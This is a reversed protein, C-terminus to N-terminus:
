GKRFHDYGGTGPLPRREGELFLTIEEGGTIEGIHAAEAGLEGIMRDLERERGPAVTFLLSYDEGGTLPWQHPDVGHAAAAARMEQTLPLRDLHVAAGVGSARCVHGLDQLLGDSIDIACRSIGREALAMGVEIQPVPRNHAEVLFDAIKADLSTVRGLIVSLGAASDGVHGCLYLSEGARAADRRLERDKRVEGIVTISVAWGAPSSVTDGGSVQLLNGAAEMIGEYFAEVERVDTDGPLGISVFAQLPVAGMAALDSVNVALSKYGLDRFPIRERLFHIGEILMDTTTVIHFGPRSSLLSADDGIGLVVRGKEQGTIESIRAILNFEGLERVKM